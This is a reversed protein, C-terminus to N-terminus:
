ATSPAGPKPHPTDPEEEREWQAYSLLAHFLLHPGLPSHRSTTPTDHSPHAQIMWNLSGPCINEVSSKPLVTKGAWHLGGVVWRGDMLWVEGGVAGVSGVWTACALNLAWRDGAPRPNLKTTHLLPPLTLPVPHAITHSGKPMRDSISLSKYSSPLRCHCGPRWLRAGRQGGM